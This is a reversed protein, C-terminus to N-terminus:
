GGIDEPVENVLHVIVDNEKKTDVVEVEVGNFVLKGTDGVQGGSEAYFPTTELVIQFQEKNKVQVKRYRVVRTDAESLDYGVFVSSLGPHVEVWDSSSVKSANRSRDKQKALEAQFGTMDVNIGHERAILDT